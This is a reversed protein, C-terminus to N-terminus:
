GKVAAVAENWLKCENLSWDVCEQYGYEDAKQIMEAVIADYEADTEAYIAQWSYNVICKTVQEWVVKFEDSKASESYASAPKIKYEGSKLFEQTSTTKTYNRWDEETSCGAPAQRSKWFDSNFVEGNSEPNECMDSWTINNMQNTGDKYQGSYGGSMETTGDARCAAGLETFYTNGEEDYDWNVGKPGYLNTIVGEPTSLWNIIEMCLEPYATKAGISWIRNGGYESLGYCLPTADSPYWTCMMKDAATHTETNYTLCGAYNFISFFTGGSRVKESMAEYNTTMSDPDLLDRQYLKNFFKLMELYPGDEQLCDYFEGTEVNLMGIAFEDYGYFATAMSKVYMVMTGDWDPWLCVAYTPNGNDDTPCIEKMDALVEIFDDLTKMEPYGLQKYLDWRLDWTYFFAETAVTEAGGAAAAVGHGFGHIKGDENISRNKELAVQMNEWIYPGYEKCLDEEEWDYLYGQKVAQLYQEGDTGWIVIDGLDGNEMRTEYVGDTNPVINITVNFKEKMLQAFWGTMNGSYNALQTYCTLKITGDDNGSCAVMCGVCMVLVLLLALIRRAKKM